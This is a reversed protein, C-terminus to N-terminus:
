ASVSGCSWPKKEWKLSRSVPAANGPRGIGDFPPTAVRGARATAAVKERATFVYIVLGIVPIIIVLVLYLVRRQEARKWAWSPQRLIDVVGSVLAALVLLGAVGSSVNNIAATQGTM